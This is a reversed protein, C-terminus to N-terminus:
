CVEVPATAIRPVAARDRASLPPRASMPGASSADDDDLAAQEFSWGAFQVTHM